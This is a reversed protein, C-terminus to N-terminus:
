VRVLHGPHSTFTVFYIGFSFQSMYIDGSFRIMKSHNESITLYCFFTYKQCLYGMQVSPGM